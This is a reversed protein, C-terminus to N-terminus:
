RRVPNAGSLRGPLSSGNFTNQHLQTYFGLLEEVFFPNGETLTYIPDPLELRVSHPLAFIARLMVEVGSRTLRSLSIEEALRERDLQALFHRLNPRVEDSRYTLLLFLPHASCRRALYYLFELSADTRTGAVTQTARWDDQNPEGQLNSDIYNGVLGSTTLSADTFFHLEGPERPPTPDAAASTLTSASFLTRSELQECAPRNQPKSRGM